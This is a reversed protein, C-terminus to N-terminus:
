KIQPAASAARDPWPCLQAGTATCGAASRPREAVSAQRIGATPSPTLRCRPAARARGHANAGGSHRQRLGASLMTRFGAERQRTRRRDNSNHRKRMSQRLGAAIEEHLVETTGSSTSTARFSPRSSRLRHPKATREKLDWIRKRLAEATIAQTNDLSVEGGKVAEGIHAATRNFELQIKLEELRDIQTVLRTRIEEVSRNLAHLETTKQQFYGATKRIEPNPHVEARIALDRVAVEQKRLTVGTEADPALRGAAARLVALCEDIDKGKAEVDQNKKLDLELEQLKLDLELEQLKEAWGASDNKLRTTEDVIAKSVSSLGFSQDKINLAAAAAASPAQAGTTMPSGTQADIHDQLILLSAGSGTAQTIQRVSARAPLASGEQTASAIHMASAATTTPTVGKQTLVVGLAALALIMLAAVIIVVLRM